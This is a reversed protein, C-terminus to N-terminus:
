MHTSLRRRGSDHTRLTKHVHTRPLSLRARGWLAAPQRHPRTLRLWRRVAQWAGCDCNLPSEPEPQALLAVVSRCVSQLTYAASWAGKLIDLCIEGTQHLTLYAASARFHFVRRLIYMLIFCKELLSFSLLHSLPTSLRSILGSTSHERCSVTQILCSLEIELRACVGEFPTDPPGPIFAEWHFLDDDTTPHLALIDDAPASRLTKLEKLLRQTASM